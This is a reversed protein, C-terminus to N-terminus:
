AVPRPADGRITAGSAAPLAVAAEVRVPRVTDPNQPPPRRAPWAWLLVVLIAIVFVALWLWLWGSRKRSEHETV